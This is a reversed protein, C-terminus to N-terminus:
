FIRLHLKKSVQELVKKGAVSNGKGDPAPSYVGIGMRSPAIAMIGGGVGSKAPVGVRLAFEGSGDYMGSTSLIANVFRTNSRRPICFPLDTGGSTDRLIIACFGFFTLENAGFSFDGAAPHPAHLYGGRANRRQRFM